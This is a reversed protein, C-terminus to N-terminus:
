TGDTEGRAVRAFDEATLRGGTGSARRAPKVAARQQQKSLARDLLMAANTQQFVPDTVWTVVTRAAAVPDQGPWNTVANEVGVRDVRLRECQRLVAIVTDVVDSPTSARRNGVGKEEITQDPLPSPTVSRSLDRDTVSQETTDRDRNRKAAQRVAARGRESDSDWGSCRCMFRRGDSDIELDDLLGIDAARSVISQAHSVTVFSERALARFGGKVLGGARQEQAWSWLVDVLFPGDAGFEDGLEVHLERRHRAADHPWWTTRGTSM